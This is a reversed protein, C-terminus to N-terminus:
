ELTYSTFRSILSPKLEMFNICSIYGLIGFLGLILSFIMSGFCFVPSCIRM